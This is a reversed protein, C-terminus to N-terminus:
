ASGSPDVPEPRASAPGDSAHFQIVFRIAIDEVERIIVDAKGRLYHYGIVFPIAITLGFATTYLAEYIGGAFKKPDDMGFEAAEQFAEIMGFVTGLLGILPAVSAVIGVPRINVRLDWLVRSAEDELAREMEQRTAGRRALLGDLVRALSVAKDKLLARASEDGSTRICKLVDAELEAPIHQRRRLSVVRELFFTLGVISTALLVWMITGGREFTEQIDSLMGGAGASAPVDAEAASAAPAGTAAPPAAEGAADPEASGRAGEATEPAAAAASEGAPVSRGCLLVLVLAVSLVCRMRM